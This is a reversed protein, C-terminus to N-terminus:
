VASFDRVYGTVRARVQAAVSTGTAGNRKIGIVTFGGSSAIQLDFAGGVSILPTIDTVTTDATILVKRYKMSNNAAGQVIGTVFVEVMCNGKLQYANVYTTNDTNSILRDAEFDKGSGSGNLNQDNEGGSYINTVNVAGTNSLFFRNDKITQGVINATSRIATLIQFFTNDAVLVSSCGTLIDVGIGDLQNTSNFSNGTITTYKAGSGVIIHSPNFASFQNGTIVTKVIVASTAALRIGATVQGEISNGTIMYDGLNGGNAAIDIHVDVGGNFKNGSVVLGSTSGVFLSTQGTGGTFSNECVFSDGEDSNTLNELYVGCGSTGPAFTNRAVHLSQTRQSWVCRLFGSFICDFVGCNSPPTASNLIKIAYATGVAAGNAIFSVGRFVAKKTTTFITNGSVTTVITASSYNDAIISVPKTLAVTGNILPGAASAPIVIVGGSTGLADHAAQFAATDDTAGDLKAGYDKVSVREREKDQLTRAVAGTGSQITGVLAAGGSAALSASTPRADLDTQVTGAATGINAATGPIALSGITPRADLDSQVTGATSGINGASGSAALTALTQIASGAVTGASAVTLTTFSGPSGGDIPDELLIDPITQNVIGPGSIQLSYRGDAAYFSFSGNGDTSIPNSRPTVGNDSYITATAGGPYTLVTVTAGPVPRGVASAVANIYKQM